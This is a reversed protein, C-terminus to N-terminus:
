RVVPDSLTQSLQRLKNLFLQEDANTHIEFRTDSSTTKDLPYIRGQQIQYATIIQYDEDVDGKIFFIYRGGVLPMGFGALSFQSTKGNSYRVRGGPRDLTISSGLLLLPQDNKLVEEICVTFESYVSSKDETLYASADTVKGIIVAESQAVPLTPFGPPWHYIEYAGVGPGIHNKYERYKKSKTKRKLVKKADTPEPADADAIPYNSFDQQKDKPFNLSARSHFTLLVGVLIVLILPLGLRSRM